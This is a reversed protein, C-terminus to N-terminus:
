TGVMLGYIIIGLYIFFAAAAVSAILLIAVKGARRDQPTAEATAAKGPTTKHETM